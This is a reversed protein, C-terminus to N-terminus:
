DTATRRPATRHPLTITAEFGLATRRLELSQKDGYLEALRAKTNALGIGRGSDPQALGPGDDSVTVVLRGDDRHAAIVISGPGAHSGIGHQLANEVLPQLIFFPVFAKEAEPELEVRISLRDGFRRRSIDLYFELIRIEEGLEIEHRNGRRLLERLLDSLSSLMEDAAVPDHTILTSIGQLTNFLFHPQLQASLADLRTEALQARIREADLAREHARVQADVAYAATAVTAFPLLGTILGVVLFEALPPALPSGHYSVRYQLLATGADWAFVVAVTVIVARVWRGREVPLHRALRFFVPASALCMYWVLSGVGLNRLLATTNAPPRPMRPLSGPPLRPAPPMTLQTVVLTVVAVVISFAAIRWVLRDRALPLARRRESPLADGKM